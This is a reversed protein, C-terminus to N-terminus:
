TRPSRAIDIRGGLVVGVTLAMVPIVALVASVVPDGGTVLTLNAVVLGMTGTLAAISVIPAVLTRLVGVSLDRRRRFFVVAAVSTLLMLTIMGVTSVAAMSGFVGILPDLGAFAFVILLVAATASQVLSSRSPAGFRTHRLGLSHPLVRANALAFQYRSIVNHFSLVCAFLSTTLLVHM